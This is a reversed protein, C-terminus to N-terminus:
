RVTRQLCPSSTLAGDEICGFMGITTLTPPALLPLTSECTAGEGEPKQEDEETHDSKGASRPMAPGLCHGTVGTAFVVAHIFSSIAEVREDETVSGLSLQSDQAGVHECLAYEVEVSSLGPVVSFPLRLRGRWSM